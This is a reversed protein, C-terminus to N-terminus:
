RGALKAFRAKKAAEEDEGEGDTPMEDEEDDDLTEDPGAGLVAAKLADKKDGMPQPTEMGEEPEPNFRTGLEDKRMGEALKKVGMWVRKMSELDPEM